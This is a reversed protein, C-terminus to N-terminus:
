GYRAFLFRTVGAYDKKTSIDHYNKESLLETLAVAQNSGIELAVM